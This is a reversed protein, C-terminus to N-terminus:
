KPHKFPYASIRASSQDSMSSRGLDQVVIWRRGDARKPEVLGQYRQQRGGEDRVSMAM